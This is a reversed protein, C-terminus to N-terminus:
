HEMPEMGELMPVNVKSVAIERLILRSVPQSIEDYESIYIFSHAGPEIGDLIIAKDASLKRSKFELLNVPLTVEFYNFACVVLRNETM